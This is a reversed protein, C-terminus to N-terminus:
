EGLLQKPATEAPALLGQPGTRNTSLLGRRAAATRRQRNRADIIRPDVPSPPPPPPPPAKPSSGSLCM